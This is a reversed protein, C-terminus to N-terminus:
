KTTENYDDLLSKSELIKNGEEVEVIIEERFNLIEILKKRTEMIIPLKGIMQTAKDLEQVSKNPKKLFDKIQDVQADIANLLEREADYQIETLVRRGSEVSEVKGNILNRGNMDLRKGDRELPYGVMIAAKFKRDSHKLLRLPSNYWDVLMIYRLQRDTLAALEPIAAFEPNDEMVPKDTLKFGLSKSM